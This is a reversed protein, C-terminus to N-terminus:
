SSTQFGATFLILERHSIILLSDFESHLNQLPNDTQIHLRIHDCSM